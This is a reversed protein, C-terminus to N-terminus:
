RKDGVSLTARVDNIEDQRITEKIESLRERKRLYDKRLTRVSLEVEAAEAATPYQGYCECAPRSTRRGDPLVGQVRGSETTNTVAIRTVAGRQLDRCHLTWHSFKM